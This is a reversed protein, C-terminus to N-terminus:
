RIHSTQNTNYAQFSTSGSNKTENHNNDERTHSEDEGQDDDEDEFADGSSLDTADTDDTEEGEHRREDDDDEVEEADNEQDDKDGQSLQNLGSSKSISKVLIEVIEIWERMGGMGIDGCVLVKEVPKLVQVYPADERLIKLHKSTVPHAYMFTNMAPAVIVPTSPNWVRLLSTLLNDCIGNAVKALTNASLPAILFIDAWKRLEIHLVPDGPRKFGFWEDEDRWLKVDKSIKLGKLFHEARKTVVLQISVKDPTYIKFLKDIILPVKLTAVSGTAGILIHIKEDDQKQFFKTFPVQPGNDEGIIAKNSVHHHHRKVLSSNVSAQPPSLPTLPAHFPHDFYIFDGPMHVISNQRSLEASSDSDNTHLETAHGGTGVGMHPVSGAPPAGAHAGSGSISNKAAANPPRTSISGRHSIKEANCPVTFSVAVVGGTPTKSFSTPSNAGSNSGMLSSDPSVDLGHTVLKIKQEMLGLNVPETTSYQNIYAKATGPGVLTGTDFKVPTAQISREGTAVGENAGNVAGSGGAVREDGVVVGHFVPAQQQPVGSTSSKVSMGRGGSMCRNNLISIPQDKQKHSSEAGPVSISETFEAESSDGM